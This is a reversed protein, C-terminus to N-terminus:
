VLHQEWQQRSDTDREFYTNLLHKGTISISIPM